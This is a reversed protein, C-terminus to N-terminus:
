DLLKAPFDGPDLFDALGTLLTSNNQAYYDIPNNRLQGTSRLGASLLVRICTGNKESSEAIITGGHLEAIGLSVALGFGAGGDEEPVNSKPLYSHFITALKDPPIGSGTDNFAIFFSRNSGGTGVVIRLHDGSQCHLLSNCIINLAMQEILNPDLQYILPGEPLELLIDIGRKKAFFRVSDIMHTFQERLDVAVPLFPLTGNRLAALTVANSSWRNLRYFCSALEAAYRELKENNQKECYRTFFDTVLRLNALASLQAAFVATAAPADHQDFTLTYLRFAALSTVTVIAHKGAITASTVFETAQSQLVYQPFLCSAPRGTEDRGLTRQAAPNMFAIIRNQTGIVATDSLSFLTGIAGAPFADKM